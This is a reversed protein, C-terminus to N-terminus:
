QGLIKLYNGSSHLIRHVLIYVEEISYFILYNDLVKYRFGVAMLQPEAPVRGLYPFEMLEMLGTEIRSAVTEARQISELAIFNIIESFDEEAVRLLRLDRKTTLDQKRESTM